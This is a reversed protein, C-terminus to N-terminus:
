KRRALCIMSKWLWPLRGFFNFRIVEFSNIELLQSLTKISFFKIHGGDWLPNFHNDFANMLALALNKLYGHYPTTVLLYGGKRLVGKATEILDAPCYLHEIVESAIVM